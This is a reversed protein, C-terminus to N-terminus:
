LGVAKRLEGLACKCADGDTAPCWHVHELQEVLPRLEALVKAREDARIQPEVSAAAKTACIDCLSVMQYRVERIECVICKM